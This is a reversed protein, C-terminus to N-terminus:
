TISTEAKAEERFLDPTTTSHCNGRVHHVEGHSVQYSQGHSMEIILEGSPTISRAIGELREKGQIFSIHKNRLYDLKKWNPYAKRFGHSRHSEICHHIAHLLDVLLANRDVGHGSLSAISAYPPSDAGQNVNVGMGIIIPITSQAEAISEILIGAIKQDECILDNPWKIQVPRNLYPQLSQAMALSVHLGLSGLNAFDPPLFTLVTVYLNQLIPSSWAKGMRGRGHSQQETIIVMPERQHARLQRIAEENTSDMSSRYHIPMMIGKAALAKQVHDPHLCSYISALQYGKNPTAHIPLGLERLKEISKWVNARSMGMQRALDEGSHYHDDALLNSLEALRETFPVWNM